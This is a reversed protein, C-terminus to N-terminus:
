KLERIKYSFKIGDEMEIVGSELWRGNERMAVFAAIIMKSFLDDVM